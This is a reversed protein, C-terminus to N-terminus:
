AGTAIAIVAELEAVVATTAVLQEVIIVAFERRIEATM